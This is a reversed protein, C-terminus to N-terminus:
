NKLFKFSVLLQGTRYRVEYFYLHPTRADELSQYFFNCLPGAKSLKECFCQGSSDQKTNIKWLFLSSSNRFSSCFRSMATSNQLLNRSFVYTLQGPIKWLKLFSTASNERKKNFYWFFWLQAKRTVKLIKVFFSAQGRRCCINLFSQHATRHIKWFKFFFTASSDQEASKKVFM